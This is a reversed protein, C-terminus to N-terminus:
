LERVRSNPARSAIDNLIKELAEVRRRIEAETMGIAAAAERRRAREGSIWLWMDKFLGERRDALEDAETRKQRQQKAINEDVIRRATLLQNCLSVLIDDVGKPRIEPVSGPSDRRFAFTPDFNWGCEEEKDAVWKADILEVCGLTDVPCYLRCVEPAEDRVRRLVKGYVKTFRNLLEQSSDKRGGNDAFYSECKIPCFLLLCPEDPKMHRESAWDGAVQEIQDITLISPWARRYESRYAEMLVASDVPIILVTSQTIFQRCTEWDEQDLRSRKAPDLWEGPFDLLDFRLGAGPVGPDIRLRYEHKEQTASLSGPKFEEAWISGQLDRKVLSIRRETEGDDGPRMTVPTGTLLQQGTDLMTAVISTKGVRAPGLLGIKFSLEGNESM